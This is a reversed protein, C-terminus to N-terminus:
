PVQELGPRPVQVGPALDVQGFAEDVAGEYPRFLPFVLRPLPVFSMAM